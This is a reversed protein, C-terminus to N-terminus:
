RVATPSKANAKMLWQHFILKERASLKQIDEDLRKHRNASVTMKALKMQCRRLQQTARRLQGKVAQLESFSCVVEDTRCATGTCLHFGETADKDGAMRHQRARIHCFTKEPSEPSSLRRRKNAPKIRASRSRPKPKSM